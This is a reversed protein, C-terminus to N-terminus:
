MRETEEMRVGEAQEQEQRCKCSCAKVAAVDTGKAAITQRLRSCPLCQCIGTTQGSKEAVEGETDRNSQQDIRESQRDPLLVEHVMVDHLCLILLVLRTVPLRKDDRTMGEDEAM